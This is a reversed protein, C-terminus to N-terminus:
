PEVLPYEIQLAVLRATAPGFRAAIDALAHDLARVPPMGPDIELAFEPSSARGPELTGDAVFRLGRKSSIPSMTAGWSKVGGRLTRGYADAVLALAIEDVGEELWLDIRAKSWFALYNRLGTLVHEARVRYRATEHQASWGPLGLREGVARAQAQGAIRAVLELSAPISATVGTTTVLREDFVYRQDDIWETDPFERALSRRSFWHGTARHGDLLGAHGLVWGGDCIGVMVAGRAAQARLWALLREDQSEHMAPVIVYDAGDPHAADFDALSTDLVAALAPFFRVPGREVGVAVVEGVDAARLVGYPVAFDTLETYANHAVVTVVPRNAGAPDAPEGRAGPAQLVALAAVILGM